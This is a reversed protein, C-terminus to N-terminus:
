IVEWLTIKAKNREPRTSKVRGIERIRGTNKMKAFLCGIWNEHPPPKLHKRITEATIENGRALVTRSLLDLADDIWARRM